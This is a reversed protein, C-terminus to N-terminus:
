WKGLKNNFAHGVKSFYYYQAHLKKSHFKQLSSITLKRANKPQGVLHMRCIKKGPQKYYFIENWMHQPIINSAEWPSRYMIRVTCVSRGKRVYCLCFPFYHACESLHAEKCWQLSIKLLVCLFNRLWRFDQGEYNTKPLPPLTMTPLLHCLNIPAMLLALRQPACWVLIVYLPLATLILLTFSPPPLDNQTFPSPPLVTLALPRFHLSFQLLTKLPPPFFWQDSRDITSIIWCLMLLSFSLWWILPHPYLIIPLAIPSTVPYISCTTSRLWQDHHVYNDNHLDLLCPQLCFFLAACSCHM